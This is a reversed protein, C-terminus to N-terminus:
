LALNSMKNAKKILFENPSMNGLSSHPHKENYDIYWKETLERVIDINSFINADLVDERYTRNFREIFANQTPKGKQITVHNISSNSCFGKFAKATFETGNDSRIEQPKGRREIIRKLAEVVQESSFSYEVDVSLAERNFDDIVNFTRFKRGNELTDHMFDISWTLNPIIPQLLTRKEPNPIRRKVKKRRSMGLKLYVRKVRKHNWVLGEKRIRNFYEPFGRAPLKEAYWRLKAEVASDDKVSDYYYSSRDLSLIKCARVISVGEERKIEKV